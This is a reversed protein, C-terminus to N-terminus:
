KDLCERLQILGRRLWTRITNLPIAFRDALEQYSYGEVYAAQVADARQEPLTELCEELRAREGANAASQEPTMKPDAIERADDIDRTEPKRRRIIDIAHNRAITILWTMPSGLDERYQDARQWIKVYIDQVADEAESRNGLIRLVVGFLKASTRAYLARFATRDALATRAILGAIEELGQDM